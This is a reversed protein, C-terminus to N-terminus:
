EYIKRDSIKKDIDPNDTGKEKAIKWYGVAKDIDNLRYTIDGLHDYVTGDANAPDADIAQQIYDKAKAYKGQKYLIWGYTDLFTASGPRLELSKKSMKEAEELNSGRESLYYAYNNLTVPNEPDLTIAKKFSEDSQKFDQSANYVEGLLSHMEALRQADGEPQMDIARNISKVAEKYEKKNYHGIGKLYHVAAQNPFLRLAKGAYTILSDPPFQRDTYQYLLNQWVPYRSPDIALSKKYQEIGKEREENIILIDGYVGLVEANNQHQQVIKEIMGLIDQSRGTDNGHSRIYEILISLQQQADLSKNTIAKLAYENYRATDKQELYHNALGLQVIPDDPFLKAAKSYVELAKDKRKNNDYMEALVVYYKGDQPNRDILQQVIKAANDLDNMKLYVEQKRMIIEEDDNGKALIQDLAALAEKYKGTQTYLGAAKYLYEENYKEQKALKTYIAAAEEFKNRLIMIEAYQSQYWPNTPEIKLAKEIYETAKEGKNQKMNLRALDFYAGAADPKMKIVELLLQEAERDDGKLRAKVADFYKMDAQMRPITHVPPTFTDAEIKQAAAQSATFLLCLLLTVCRKGSLFNATVKEAPESLWNIFRFNSDTGNM